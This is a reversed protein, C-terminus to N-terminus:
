VSVGFPNYGHKAHAALYARHTEKEPDIRTTGSNLNNIGGIGLGTLDSLQKATIRHERRLTKAAGVDWKSQPTSKAQTRRRSPIKKEYRDCLAGLAKIFTERDRPDLREYIEKPRDSLAKRCEEKDM